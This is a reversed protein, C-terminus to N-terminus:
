LVQLSVLVLLRQDVGLALPALLVAVREEVLEGVILDGVVPVVAGNGFMVILTNASVSSSASRGDAHSSGRLLQYLAIVSHRGTAVITM